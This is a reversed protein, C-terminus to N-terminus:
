PTAIERVLRVFMVDHTRPLMPVSFDILPDTVTDPIFSVCDLTSPIRANIALKSPVFPVVEQPVPLVRFRFPPVLAAGEADPDVELAVITARPPVTVM